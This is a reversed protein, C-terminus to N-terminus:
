NVLSLERLFFGLEKGTDVTALLEESLPPVELGSRAPISLAEMAGHSWPQSRVPGTVPHLFSQVCLYVAFQTQPPQASHYFFWLVRSLLEAHKTSNILSARCTM